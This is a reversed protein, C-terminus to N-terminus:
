PWGNLRVPCNSSAFSQPCFLQVEELIALGALEVWLLLLSSCVFLSSLAFLLSFFRIQNTLMNFCFDVIM